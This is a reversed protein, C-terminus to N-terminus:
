KKPNLLGLIHAKIVALHKDAATIDDRTLGCMEYRASYGFYKLDQYESYIRKLNSDRGMYSDRATHSRLHAAMAKALYAEVYHMAAYFVVILKWDIRPQNDPTISAAFAENGRAKEIHEDKNPM